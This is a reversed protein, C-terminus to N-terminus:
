VEELIKITLCCFVPGYIDRDEPGYVRIWQTGESVVHNCEVKCIVSNSIGVTVVYIKADELKDFVHYGGLYYPAINIFGNTGYTEGLVKTNEDFYPETYFKADLRRSYVKYGYRPKFCKGTSRCLKTCCILLM